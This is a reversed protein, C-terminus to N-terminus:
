SGRRCSDEVAVVARLLNRPREVQLPRRRRAARRGRLRGTHLIVRVRQAVVFIYEPILLTDLRYPAAFQVLEAALYFLALLLASAMALRHCKVKRWM